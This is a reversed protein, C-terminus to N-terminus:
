GSDYRRKSYYVEMLKNTKFEHGVCPVSGLTYFVAFRPRSDIDVRFNLGSNLIVFLSM